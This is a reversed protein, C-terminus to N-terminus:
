KYCYVQLLTSIKSLNLQKLIMMKMNEYVQADKVDQRILDNNVNIYSFALFGPLQNISILLKWNWERTNGHANYFSSIKMGGIFCSTKWFDTQVEYDVQLFNLNNYRKFYLNCLNFLHISFFHRYDINCVCGMPNSKYVHQCYFFFFSFLSCIGQNPNGKM